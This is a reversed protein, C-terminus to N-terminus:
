FQGLPLVQWHSTRWRKERNELHSNRQSVMCQCLRQEMEKRVGFGSTSKLHRRHYRETTRIWSYVWSEEKLDGLVAPVHLFIVLSFVWSDCLRFFLGLFFKDLWCEPGYAHSTWKYNLTGLTNIRLPHNTTGQNGMSPRRKVCTM